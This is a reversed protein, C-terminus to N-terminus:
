SRTVQDPLENGSRDEGPVTARLLTGIMDLAVALGRSPEGAAFGDAVANVADQWFGKKGAGHIGPGAYVAARRDKVAVYLLVGTGEATREMGLQSFLAAAREVPDEVPCKGEIHVRVEGRNGKEAEGIATVVAKEDERSLYRRKLFSRWFTGTSKGAM